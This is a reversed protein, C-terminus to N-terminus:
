ANTTNPKLFLTSQHGFNAAEAESCTGEGLESPRLQLKPLAAHSNSALTLDQAASTVVEAVLMMQADFEARASSSFKPWLTAPVEAVDV